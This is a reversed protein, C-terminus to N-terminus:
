FKTIEEAIDYRYGTTRYQRFLYSNEHNGLLLKVKQPFRKKLAVIEALNDLMAQDEITYSDVYDGLFIIIDYDAPNVKKWDCRGHIDGITVTKM